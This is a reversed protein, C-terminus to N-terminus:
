GIRGYGGWRKGCEEAWAVFRDKEGYQWPFESEVLLGAWERAKELLERDRLPNAIRFGPGGWQRTGTVDGPGRFALDAEAIEFGDQTEELVKLRRLSEESADESRMLICFGNQDGRGVRGRLQHLQALGFRESHEVVIVSAEPLDIGVEVVSTAVLLKVAGSRLGEMTAEKESAKMRGHLLAVAYGKFPGAQFREYAQVAAQLDTAESEEVVPFVFFVQRGEDMEKRLFAEVRHRASEDRVATLVRKRGPPLEDLVSLDLDGYLTM